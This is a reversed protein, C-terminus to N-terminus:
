ISDIHIFYDVAVHAKTAFVGIQSPPPTVSASGMIDIGAAGNVAAHCLVQGSGVQAKLKTTGADLTAGADLQVIPLFDIDNTTASLELLADGSAPQHVACEFTAFGSIFQIAVRANTVVSTPQFAIEVTDLDASASFPTAAVYPAATADVQLADSAFTPPAGYSWEAHTAIFPDFFAIRDIPMQMHPDCGDGVQDHDADPQTPDSVHPCVDDCDDIGDGDEDHGAVCGSGGFRNGDTGPGGDGQGTPDFGIRGCGLAVVFALAAVRVVDGDYV